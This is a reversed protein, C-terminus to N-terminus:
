VNKPRSCVLLVHDAGLSVTMSLFCVYFISSKSTATLNKLSVICHAPQFVVCSCVSL